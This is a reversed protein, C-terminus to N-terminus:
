NPQIEELYEEILEQQTTHRGSEKFCALVSFSTQVIEKAASLGKRGLTSPPELIIGQVSGGLYSNLFGGAQLPIDECQSIESPFTGELLRYEVKWIGLENAYNISLRIAWVAEEKNFMFVPACTSRGGRKFPSVIRHDVRSPLGVWFCVLSPLLVLKTETGAAQITEPTEVLEVIRGLRQKDGRKGEM